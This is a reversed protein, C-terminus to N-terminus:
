CTWVRPPGYWIVIRENRLSHGFPDVMEDNYYDGIQIHWYFGPVSIVRDIRQIQYRNAIRKFAARTRLVSEIASFVSCGLHTLVEPVVILLALCGFHYKCVSSPDTSREVGRRIGGARWNM